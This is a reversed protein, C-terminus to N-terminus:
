VKCPSRSCDAGISYDASLIQISRLRRLHDLEMCDGERRERDVVIMNNDKIKTDQPVLEVVEM